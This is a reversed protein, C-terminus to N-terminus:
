HIGGALLADDQLHGGCASRADRKQIGVSFDQVFENRCFRSDLVKSPLSRRNEKLYGDHEGATIIRTSHCLHIPFFFTLTQRGAVRRHFIAFQLFDRDAKWRQCFNGFDRKIRFHRFTGQWAGGLDRGIVRAFNRFGVSALRDKKAAKAIQWFSRDRFANQIRGSDFAEQNVVVHNSKVPKIGVEDSPDFQKNGCVIRLRCALQEIFTPRYLKINFSYSFVLLRM